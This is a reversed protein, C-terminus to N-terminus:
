LTVTEKPLEARSTLITGISTAKKKELVDRICAVQFNYTIINRGECKLPQILRCANRELDKAPAEGAGEGGCQIRVQSRFQLEEMIKDTKYHVFRCWVRNTAFRDAIM